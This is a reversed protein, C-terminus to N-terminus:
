LTALDDKYSKETEIFKKTMILVYKHKMFHKHLKGLREFFRDVDLEAM